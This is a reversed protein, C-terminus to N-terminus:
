LQATMEAAQRVVLDSFEKQNEHSPVCFVPGYLSLAAVIKGNRGFVPASVGALGREFEERVWAYGQQFVSDLHTRLEIPDTITNDTFRELPKSLYRDLLAPDHALFLKCPSSVHLFPFYNGTWDRLQINNSPNSKQALYFLRDGDMISLTATEGTMEVLQRLHGEGLNVLSSPQALLNSIARGIRYGSSPSKRQIAGVQELTSLMRSVTSKPLGTLRAVDGVQAGDPLQAVANLIQFARQVSQIEAM